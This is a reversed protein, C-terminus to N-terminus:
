PYMNTKGNNFQKQCNNIPTEEMKIEINIETKFSFLELVKDNM